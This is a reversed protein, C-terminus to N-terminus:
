SLAGQNSIKLSFEVAQKMPDIGVAELEHKMRDTLYGKEKYAEFVQNRVYIPNAPPSANM